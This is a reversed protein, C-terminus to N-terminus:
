PTAGQAMGSAVPWQGSDRLVAEAENLLSRMVQISAADFECGQRIRAALDARLKSHRLLKARAPTAIKRPHSLKDSWSGVELGNKKYFRRNGALIQTPTVRKVTIDDAEVIGYRSSDVCVRDGAVLSNLYSVLEPSPM